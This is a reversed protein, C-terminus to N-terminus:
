GASPCGAPADTWRWGSLSVVVGTVAPGAPVRGEWTWSTEADDGVTTPEPSPWESEPVEYTSGDDRTFTIRVTGVDVTAGTRNAVIGSVRLTWDGDENTAGAWSRMDAAPAGAPCPPAATTTPRAPPVTTAVSTDRPTVTSGDTISTAPAAPETTREPVTGPSPAPTRHPRSTPTATAPPPPPAPATTTTAADIAEGLVRPRLPGDGGAVRLLVLGLVIALAAAVVPGTRRAGEEVAEM